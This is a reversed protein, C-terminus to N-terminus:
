CNDVLTSTFTPPYKSLWTSTLYIDLVKVVSTFLYVITEMEHLFICPYKDAFMIQESFRVTKRSRLELFVTLMSSCIIELDLYRLMNEIWISVVTKIIRWINKAVRATKFIPTYERINGLKPQPVNPWMIRKSWDRALSFIQHIIIFKLAASYWVPQIILGMIKTLLIQEEKIILSFYLDGNLKEGNTWLHIASARWRLAPWHSHASFM